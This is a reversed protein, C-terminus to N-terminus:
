DGVSGTRGGQEHFGGWLDMLPGVTVDFRGESFQCLDLARALLGCTETSISARKKGAADNIAGFRVTLASVASVASWSELIHKETDGIAEESGPGFAVCCWLAWAIFRRSLFAM